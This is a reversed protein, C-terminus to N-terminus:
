SLAERIDLLFDRLLLMCGVITRGAAGSAIHVTHLLAHIKEATPNACATQGSKRRDPACEHM